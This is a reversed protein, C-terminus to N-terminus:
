EGAKIPVKKIDPFASVQHKKSEEIHRYPGVKLTTPSDVEKTKNSISKSKKM